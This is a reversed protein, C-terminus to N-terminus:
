VVLAEWVFMPASRVTTTRAEVVICRLRLRLLLLRLMATMQLARNASFSM